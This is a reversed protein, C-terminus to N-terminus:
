HGSAIPNDNTGLNWDLVGQYPISSPIVNGGVATTLPPNLGNYGATVMQLRSITKDGGALVTRYAIIKSENSALTNVGQVSDLSHLFWGFYYYNVDDSDFVAGKWTVTGPLSGLTAFVDAHPGEGHNLASLMSSPNNYGSDFLETIDWSGIAAPFNSLAFSDRISQAKSPNARIYADVSALASAMPADIVQGGISGGAAIHHQAGQRISNFEVLAFTGVLASIGLAVLAGISDHGTPDYNTIPNGNAYLYKNLDIPNAKDGGFSDFSTFRGIVPAYYRTQLAYVDFVSAASIAENM